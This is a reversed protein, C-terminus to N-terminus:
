ATAGNRSNTIGLESAKVYVASVPRSLTVAIREVPQKDTYMKKLFSIEDATWPILKRAPSPAPKVPPPGDTPQPVTGDTHPSPQPAVPFLTLLDALLTIAEDETLTHSHEGIEVRVITEISVKMEYGKRCSRTWAPSTHM